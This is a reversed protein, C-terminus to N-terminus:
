EIGMVGSYNKVRRLKQRLAAPGTGGQLWRQAVTTNREMMTNTVQEVIEEGNLGMEALQEIAKDTYKGQDAIAQILKKQKKALMAQDTSDIFSAQQARAKAVTGSGFLTSFNEMPTQEVIGKGNGGPVVSRDFSDYNMADVLFKGGVLPTVKMDAKRMEAQTTIGTGTIDKFHMGITTGVQAMFAIAPFAELVSQPDDKMFRELFSNWRMGSGVDLGTVASPIGREVWAPSDLLIKKPDPLWDLNPDIEVFMDRIFQYEVLIPLGIAGAMLQTVLMTSLAPLASRLTRERAMFHIDSVFNGLQATGFTLLPSAAQGVLGAQDVWDAKNSRNYAVMTADTADSVADILEMAKLGKSRYHEIMINATWYRSFIDAAESSSQGTILRIIEVFKKGSNPDLWNVTNLENMLQPRISTTNDVMYRMVAASVADQKIAGFSRATGKAISKAIDALPIDTDRLIHRISAPATLVQSVWFGPRPMLTTIYFMSSSVGLTKDVPSVRPFYDSKGFLKAVNHAFGDSFDRVSKDFGKAIGWEPVTNLGADRIRKAYNTANPITDQLTSDVELLRDTNFKIEQKVRISSIEDAWNFMSEKYAKGLETRTKFWESGAYGGIGQRFTQHKGFKMGTTTMQDLANTLGYIDPDLGLRNFLDQSIDIVEDLGVSSERTLEIDEFETKYEPFNRMKEQFWRAEIETCFLQKRYILDNAFVSVAYKGKRIAPYYDPRIPIQKRGQKSLVDNNDELATNIARKESVYADIVKQHIGADQLEKTRNTLHYEFWPMGEIGKAKMQAQIDEVTRFEDFFKKNWDHLVAGMEDNLAHFTKYVSMESMYQKFNTFRKGVNGLINPNMGHLVKNKFAVGGQEARRVVEGVYNVVLNAFIDKKQTKGFITGYIASLKPGIDSIEGSLVKAKIQDQTYKIATGISQEGLGSNVQNNLNRQQAIPDITRAESILTKGIGLLESYATRVKPDFGLLDMVANVMKKFPSIKEIGQFTNLWWAFKEHTLGYALFEKLNYVFPKDKMKPSAKVYNYLETLQNIARRERSTLKSPDLAFQDIANSSARHVVEHVLTTGSNPAKDSNIRINETGTQYGGFQPFDNGYRIIPSIWKNKLLAKSIVSLVHTEPLNAVIHNLGAVWGGAEVSTRLGAITGPDVRTQPTDQNFDFKGKSEAVIAYAEDAALKAKVETLRTQVLDFDTRAQTGTRPRKRVGNKDVQYLSDAIVELETVQQRLNTVEQATEQGQKQMAYPEGQQQISTAKYIQDLERDINARASASLDSSLLAEKRAIVKAQIEPTQKLFNDISFAQNIADTSAGEGAYNSTARGQAALSNPAETASPMYPPVEGQTVPAEPAIALAEQPRTALEQQLAALEKELNDRFRGSAGKALREQKYTITTELGKRSASKLGGKRAMEDFSMKTSTTDGKAFSALLNKDGETFGRAVLNDVTKVENLRQQLADREKVLNLTEKELRTAETLRGVEQEAVAKGGTLNARREAELYQTTLQEIQSPEPPPKPPEKGGKALTDLDSNVSSLQEDLAALERQAKEVLYGRDPYKAVKVEAKALNNELTTRYDSLRTQQNILNAYQEATAKELSPPKVTGPPSVPPVERPPVPGKSRATAPSMAGFAGGMVGELALATPDFLDQHLNGYDGTIQNQIIRDAIGTAMNIGAGEGARGLLSAGLLKGGASMPLAVSGAAMLGSAIGAKLAAAEDGGTKDLVESYRSGGQVGSMAPAALATSAGMAGLTGMGAVTASLAAMAPVTAGLIPAAKGLGVALGQQQAAEEAQQQATKYTQETAGGYAKSAGLATELFGKGMSELFGQDQPPQSPEMGEFISAVEEVTIDDPFSYNKGDLSYIKAM